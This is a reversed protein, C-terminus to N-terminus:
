RNLVVPFETEVCKPRDNYTAPYFKWQDVAAVVARTLPMSGTHVQYVRTNGAADIKVRVQVRVGRKGRLEVPLRPEVRTKLRVLAVSSPNELCGDGVDPQTTPSGPELNSIPRGTCNNMRDLIDPAISAEPLLANAAKRVSDMTAQDQAGCAQTWAGAMDAIAKRYESRVQDLSASARGEVNMSLLRRYGEAATALDGNKFQARWELTLQEILLRFRNDILVLYEAALHHQPNLALVSHIRTLARPLDGGVYAEIAEAYISEATEMNKAPMV